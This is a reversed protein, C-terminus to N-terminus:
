GLLCPHVKETKGLLVVTEAHILQSVCPVRLLHHHVWIADEAADVSLGDFFVTWMRESLTQREFYQLGSGM